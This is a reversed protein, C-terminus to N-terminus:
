EGGRLFSFKRTGTPKTITKLFRFMRNAMETAEEFSICKGTKLEYIQKWENVAEKCLM